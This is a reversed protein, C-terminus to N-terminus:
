VHEVLEVGDEREKGMVEMKDDRDIAIAESGGLSRRGVVRGKPATGLLLELYTTQPGFLGDGGGGNRRHSTVKPIAPGLEGARASARESTQRFRFRSDM